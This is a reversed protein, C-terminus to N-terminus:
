YLCADDAHRNQEPQELRYVGWTCWRSSCLWMRHALLQQLWVKSCCQQGWPTSYCVSHVQRLDFHV